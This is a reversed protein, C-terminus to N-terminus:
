RQLAELTKKHILTKKLVQKLYCNFVKMRCPTAPIFRERGFEGVLVCAPTAGGVLFCCLAGSSGV